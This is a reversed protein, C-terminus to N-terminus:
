SDQSNIEEQRKKYVSYFIAIAAFSWILIYTLGSIETSFFTDPCSPCTAIKYVVNFFAYAGLILNITNRM